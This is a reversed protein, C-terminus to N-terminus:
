LEVPPEDPPLLGGRPPNKAKRFRHLLSSVARGFDMPGGDWRTVATRANIVIEQQEHQRPLERWDGIPQSHGRAVGDFREGDPRLFRVAGDDLTQVIVKEEHVARHHFRCLLLLNSLKTEGGHAWHVVHHADTYRTNCCGPFRCGKDRARLARQLAPPISRTKRGVSLPDGNEDEVMGVVSADCALRRATEAAIHTGDDIECRGACGTQLTEMDVHVVIQHKDGGSMTAAGNQLFSEALLELADARKTRTPLFKVNPAGAPTDTEVAEPETEWLDDVAKEIAKMFLAGSQAPLRAKIVVSGDHDYFFQLMRDKQQRAERTLEESEKANRYYRVLREVHQATGHTAIMLLYDEAAPCAVRTLERVKSYSLEGREMAASIKPLKELARATRVKELAACFSIGCKWNLWHACSQTSGDPWGGRRDFQAM